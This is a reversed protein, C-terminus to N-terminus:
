IRFHAACRRAPIDLYILFMDVGYFSLYSCYGKITIQLWNRRFQNCALVRDTMGTSAETWTQIYELRSTCLQPFDGSFVGSTLSFHHTSHHCNRNYQSRHPAGRNPMYEQRVFHMDPSTLKDVISSLFSLRSSM